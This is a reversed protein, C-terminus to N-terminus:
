TIVTPCYAVKMDYVMDAKIPKSMVAHV